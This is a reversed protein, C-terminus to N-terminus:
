CATELSEGNDADVPSSRPVAHLRRNMPLFISFVTGHRSPDISSRVRLNGRNRRIASIAVWLGLGTGSEGKTTLFPTGLRKRTEPAMGSGNDAITVRLGRVGPRKWNGGPRLRLWLTGGVPAAEIANVILNSFAQRMEGPLIDVTKTPAYRRQLNLRKEAIKRQYLVLVEELLTELHIPAPRSAERYFSLTQKSIQVVRNLERQALRLYARGETSLNREQDVLFLLNTISELPNNIEHAISATLRGISILKQNRRLLSAVAEPNQFLDSMETPSYSAGGSPQGFPAMDDQLENKPANVAKLARNTHLIKM